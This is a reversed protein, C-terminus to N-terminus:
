DDLSQPIYVVFYFISVDDMDTKQECPIPSKEPLM